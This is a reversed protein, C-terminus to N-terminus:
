RLLERTDYIDIAGNTYIKSVDAVSAFKELSSASVPLRRVFAGSEDSEVYYGILPAERSLRHDVVIYALSQGKLARRDTADFSSGFLIRPLSIGEYRGFIPDLNGYSGLLTANTRDTLVRSKAPLQASAFAAAAIGEPTVSRDEAGVLYRGPQRTALLEGLLFSGLFSVLAAATVALRAGVAAARRWRPRISRVTLLAALFAVGVFVFGSARQSIESSALTLRLGLTVPYLVAVAGLAWWLRERLRDRWIARLGAGVLILTLVVYALTLARGAVGESQGAGAFLQKSSSNGVILDSVSNFARSFLGGLEAITAPGAVSSLWIASTIALLLTPVLPGNVFHEDGARDSGRLTTAALVMWLLVFALVALTTMHHTVTLGCILLLLTGALGVTASAPALLDGLSWRLSILLVSAAAMLALSEYSFQADFYLFSPNCAYIAIGISAARSSEIVKELFLFLALMLVARAMGLVILGSHFISLGTL